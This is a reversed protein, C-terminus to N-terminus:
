RGWARRPEDDDDDEGDGYQWMNLRSRKAHEVAARLEKLEKSANANQKGDKTLSNYGSRLVEGNVNTDGDFLMLHFVDGSKAVIQAKLQKKMIQSALFHGAENGYGDTDELSPSKVYALKCEYALPATTTDGSWPQMVDSSVIDTNGYDIFQVKWGM